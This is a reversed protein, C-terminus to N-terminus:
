PENDTIHEKVARRLDPGTDFTTIIDVLEGNKYLGFRYASLDLNVGPHEPSLQETITEHHKVTYPM